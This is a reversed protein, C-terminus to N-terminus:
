ESESETPRNRIVNVLYDIEEKGYRQDITIPIVYRSIWYEFSDEPQEGCIYSWWHGQFHKAEFLRRICADEEVVLPYVMPVTGDDMYMTPDIRNISGLLEQAYAFNEKRKKINYDYDEADMLVRTLKSMKMCGEHDIRSENLGRAEYGKGECGYEIRKLLFAATDSSYCQPYEEVFLHADKGVVYAGDPAGVFKRCSYVNLAGELPKCFFAQACDIIPHAFTRALFRMREASMIGYYNCLLVADDEEAAIDTPNFNRDQHYFKMEVGHKEFTERISDCQYVPIWIRKCGTVRFAHWIGQRATNLRAIDTTQDYWESGKRLQLEIFSGIEM